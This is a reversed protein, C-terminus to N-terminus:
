GGGLKGRLLLCLRRRLGLRLRLCLRLGLRLGLQLGLRYGLRLGSGERGLFLRATGRAGL